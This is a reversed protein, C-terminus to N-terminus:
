GLFFCYAFDLRGWPISECKSCGTQVLGLSEQGTCCVAEFEALCIDKELLGPQDVGLRWEDITPTQKEAQSEKQTDTNTDRNLCLARKRKGYSQTVEAVCGDDVGTPPNAALDFPEGFEDGDFFLGDDLAINDFLSGEVGGGSIAVSSPLDPSITADLYELGSDDPPEDSFFSDDTSSALSFTQPTDINPMESLADSGFADWGVTDSLANEPDDFENSSDQFSSGLTYSILAFLLYAPFM